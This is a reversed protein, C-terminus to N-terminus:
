TSCEFSDASDPNGTRYAPWRPYECMPRSRGTAADTVVPARPERNQEAWREIATISDWEAAFAPNGVNAHNAGPVLYYRMFDRATRHGVTEVVRTYYDNTSRHSVLEDAAGHMLLLKGGSRAFPRLDADNIDQVQSLESIREMWQGPRDPAMSLSDRTPDRTLFYKVWQDWYQMGYGSTLPMPTSPPTTGWGLLPTRMDAGSLFPFGPYSREGSAVEYPWEWPSSIAKVAKIQRDSLCTPGIDDGNPCRLQEPEFHCGEPNSVIGDALGDLGDCDRIVSDYLLTQKEAGSFAGPEALLRTAYGLYLAEALNNWAPYASIVGDFVHPWRQIVALAERGGTSGGTFYMHRPKARYWQRILFLAADHTKKLADGAAFNRLAEDNMAFSGDLSSVPHQAPDAQHGSDSAYTAYGRALPTPADRPGFPVNGRIDPITGNYGGGGLMMSRHNWRLPLAVRMEIDPASRDIPSLAAHVRCYTVNVGSITETVSSSADVHGGRTPLSTVTAPIATGVLAECRADPGRQAPSAAAVPQPSVAPVLLTGAAVLAVGVHTRLKM